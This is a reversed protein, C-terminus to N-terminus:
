APLGPDKEPGRSPAAASCTAPACTAAMARTTRSLSPSHGTCRSSQGVVRAPSTGRRADRGLPALKSRSTSGAAAQDQPASLYPLPAPDGAPRAFAPARFPELADLTVIWPSITTAFNKALFPGLPQYEWSQMDRASWDNLLCFGFSASRPAPRDPVPEGLANGAGVFLASRSNTTSRTRRASAPPARMPRTQGRPRRVPTGSVVISSARGHYGIPVYKYNPLLPNDPRFMAGVNTAHHISAYFDTYDGIQAPLQMTAGAIPVLLAAVREKIDAAAEDASLLSTVRHRLARSAAHGLAMLPNLVVAQCAEIIPQPLGTFFGAAACAHLDLVQDGIAIGIRAEGDRYTFVGFPLNALPFDGGPDNATCALKASESGVLRRWIAIPEEFSCSGFSLFFRQRMDRIQQTSVRFSRCAISEASVHWAAPDSENLLAVAEEEDGGLYILAAACLSSSATCPASPVRRLM